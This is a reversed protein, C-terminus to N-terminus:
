WEGGPRFHPAGKNLYRHDNLARARVWGRRPHLSRPAYCHDCIWWRWGRRCFPHPSVVPDTM